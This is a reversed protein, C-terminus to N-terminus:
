VKVSQTAKLAATVKASSAPKGTLKEILSVATEEAIASVHKMAEDRLARIRSEDEALRANLRADEAASAAASEAAVRAKADEALKRAATHAAAMEAKTEKAQAEAEDRIARANALDEAIQAGRKDIITRLRPVFVKSMLVLLVAFILVLWVIQGAWHEAQFQPLGGKGHEGAGHDASAHETTVHGTAAHPTEGVTVTLPESSASASDSPSSAQPSALSM